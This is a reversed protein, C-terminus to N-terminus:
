LINEITKGLHLIDMDSFQRGIIQMGVSLGEITGTPMSLAPLGALNVPVTYIDSLYMQLPDDIKEGIKFAPFPSTPTLIFDVRSFAKQFDKKIVERARQAKLYYEDYYGSSLCFIGLMIRRKVEDGFGEERTQFYENLLNNLHSTTNPSHSKKGYRIGDFRALNASAESTAIIYYCALAYSFNPLSIEEIEMGSKEIKQIAKELVDKVQVSLGEGFFEKAIGIKIPEKKSHLQQRKAWDVPANTADKKDKVAIVKFIDECDQVSKALPGIQDLSSAFAILGYRSVAGYTPKLGVIGCFSAPQRISGGTDSGLAFHCENAAVAAASGGSSGGPVRSLDHPNRTIQFASHETSSGMAFEDLNTKGLIIAGEKKLLEVVTADYVARYNELIRSGATCPMAQVMINDKIACPIGALVGLPEKNKIKEDIVKAQEQAEKQAIHLFAGIQKESQSIRQCYFDCLQSCSFNKELLGQHLQKITMLSFDM